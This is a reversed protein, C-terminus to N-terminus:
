PHLGLEIISVDELPTDLEVWVEKRADGSERRDPTLLRIGREPSGSFRVDDIGGCVPIVNVNERICRTIVFVGEGAEIIETTRKIGCDRNM